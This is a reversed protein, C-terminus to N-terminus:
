NVLFKVATGVLVASVAWLFFKPYYGSHIASSPCAISRGEIRDRESLLPIRGREEPILLLGCLLFFNGANKSSSMISLPVAFILGALVPLYYFFYGPFYFFLLVAIILGSCCQYKHAYWAETWSLRQLDRRQSKWGSDQGSIIEIINGTNSLMMIPSFLISFFMEVLFGATIAARGGCLHCQNTRLMTYAWGLIKPLFLIVMTYLFLGFMNTYQLSNRICCILGNIGTVSFRHSVSVMVFSGSIMMLLWLVSSLYGMIGILFHLRSCVVLGKASIVKMHQLNGQTWRRDRITQDLLSPPSEEWSGYLDSAIKVKWNKRRILAAEVFDHSLIYGGFPKRGALVPLGCSAAFAQMRIIANHGWYNGDNGSWVAIGAANIRGYVRSAFQQLRAFFNMHGYLVPVTQLIGLDHDGQMRRVLSDLTSASMISDADLIVMYDYRAGWKRVFDAINGAKRGTNKERNRYWLPMVTFLRQKLEGYLFLEREIIDKDTSDSLIVIEFFGANGAKYLEKAMSELAAFCRQMNENYLPMVIATRSGEASSEPWLAHYRNFVLGVVASAAAFSIWLLNLFFLIFFFLYVIHCLKQYIFSYLIVIGTGSFGGTLIVLLIRAAVTEAAMHLEPKLVTCTKLNQVPMALGAYPPMMSFVNSM